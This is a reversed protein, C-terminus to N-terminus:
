YQLARSYTSSWRVTITFFYTDAAGNEGYTANALDLPHGKPVIRLHSLIHGWESMLVQSRDYVSSMQCLFCFFILLQQIYIGCVCVCVFVYDAISAIADSIPLSPPTNFFISVFPVLFGWESHQHSCYVIFHWIDRPTSPAQSVVRSHCKM